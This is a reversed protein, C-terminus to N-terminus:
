GGIPSRLVAANALNAARSRIAPLAGYLNQGPCATQGADRHGYITSFTVVRGAPFKSAGGASTLRVSAGAVIRHVSFKWAILRSISEVMPAPAAGTAFNGIAAVGITRSNFGGTHAGVVTRTIGGARGEFTRGFRDVFFNYGVDCWGRGGAAAARTHFAYFGRIIGAVAGAAYGNASATHHVAAAAMGTSYTPACNRLSENAGWGARSVITPKAPATVATQFSANAANVGVPDAGPDILVAKIGSLTGNSAEAWVQLGDAGVAVIPDTGGRTGAKADATGPDPAVDSASVGSWRTWTGSERVRYRIVVDGLGDTLDWTVGLVTFPTTSLKPTLVDPDPRRHPNNVVTLAQQIVALGTVSANTEQSTGANTVPTTDPQTPAASGDEPPVVDPSPLDTVADARVGTLDLEVVSLQHQRSSTPTPFAPDAAISPVISVAAAAAVIAHFFRFSM